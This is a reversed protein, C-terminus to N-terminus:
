EKFSYTYTWTRLEGDSDAANILSILRFPYDDLIVKIYEFEIKVIDN